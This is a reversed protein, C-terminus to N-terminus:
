GPHRHRGVYKVGIDPDLSASQKDGLRSAALGKLASYLAGFGFATALETLGANPIVDVGDLSWVSLAAWAGSSIVREALDRLFLKDFM